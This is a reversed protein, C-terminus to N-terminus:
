RENEKQHVANTIEKLMNIDNTQELINGTVIYGAGSNVALKASEPDKIGGGIILPISLHKSLYEILKTSAYNLAGSGSELFILKMGLYQGALAHALIIDERDMPLPRTNSMVEVSSRTGGELLIYGTPITELGINYIKPASQVQEGILYQPNRGSLLSLYLIADAKASIQSSSGPFIIIPLTTNERIISMRQEFKDDMILSGGVFIVDYDVTSIRQILEVLNKDNKSDPDILAIACAGRRTRIEEIISFTNM